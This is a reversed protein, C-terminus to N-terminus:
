RPPAGDPPRTNRSVRRFFQSTHGAKAPCIKKHSGTVSIGPFVPYVLAASSFVAGDMVVWKQHNSLLMRNHGRNSNSLICELRFNEIGLQRHQYIEPGGPAAGAPHEGGNDVFDGRFVGGL